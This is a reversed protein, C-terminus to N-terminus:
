RYDDNPQMLPQERGDLMRSAVPYKVGCREVAKRWLTPNAKVPTSSDMVITAYDMLHCM